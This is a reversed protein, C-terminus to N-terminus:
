PDIDTLAADLAACILDIIEAIHSEKVIFPPALLIHDGKEGDACGGSPYCILGLDMAKKKIRAHLKLSPAFPEKTTRDAVLEIAQFLGRGRIDGVFPHEGLRDQM